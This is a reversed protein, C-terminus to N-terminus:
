PDLRYDFCVSTPDHEKRVSNYGNQDEPLEFTACIQFNNPGIINYEFAEGSFPDTLLESDPCETHQGLTEPLQNENQRALCRIHVDADRIRDLRKADRAEIQGRAPGGATILGSIIATISLSAIIAPMLFNRMMERRIQTRIYGISATAFIALFAIKLAGAIYDGGQLVQRILAALAILLSSAILFMALYGLWKRVPSRQRDPTTTANRSLHLHLWIFVPTTAILAAINTRMQSRQRFRLAEDAFAADITDAMLITGHLAMWWLTGFLLLYFFAERPSFRPRPRPIPPSFPSDVWAALAQKVEQDDWGADRLAQQIEARSHGAILADRTFEALQDSHRM